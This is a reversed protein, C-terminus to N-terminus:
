VTLATLWEVRGVAHVDWVGLSGSMERYIELQKGFKRVNSGDKITGNKWDIANAVSFYYDINDEMVMCINEGASNEAADETKGFEMIDINFSERPLYSGPAKERYIQDDDKSPDYMIEATVGMPLKIKTFQFGYEWEHDHVGIGDKNPRIAYGPELTQFTSAQAAILNSLYTIAGTGGCLIPKRNKFGRRRIFIQHMFDYLENLTFSGGHPFYQGDRAIQRWGPATKIIRNSRRDETVQLRGFECVHERDQETRELLREEAMPIFMGKKIVRNGAAKLNAQYVHGRGFADRVKTGDFNEYTGDNSVGRKAASMEQRIFRDTFVVKNGYQGVYSSLKMMQAYEDTGYVENEENSLQTGVRCFMKGEQLYELPMYSNPNGDQLQVTYVWSFAGDPDGHGIVKLLPADDSESKLLIPEELHDVDMAIQFLKNDKGPQADSTVVRTIRYDMIADGAVSWSYENKGGPIVYFNEQAMTLYTWRKNTMGLMNTASFLLSTKVGFDYPNEDRYMAAHAVSDFFNGGFKRYESVTIATKRDM